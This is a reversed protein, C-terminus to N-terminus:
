SLNLCTEKDKKLTTCGVFSFSCFAMMVVMILALKNKFLKNM